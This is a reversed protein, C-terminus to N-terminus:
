PKADPAPKVAVNKPLLRRQLYGIIRGDPTKQDYDWKIYPRGGDGPSFEMTLYEREDANLERATGDEEIYVYKFDM